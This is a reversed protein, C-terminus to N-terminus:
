NLCVTRTSCWQYGGAAGAGVGFLGSAVGSSGDSGETVSGGGVLISGGEFFPGETESTGECFEETSYNATIGM